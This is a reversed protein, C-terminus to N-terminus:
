TNSKTIIEAGMKSTKTFSRLFFTLVSCISFFFLFFFLSPFSFYHFLSLSLSFRTTFVTGKEKCGCTTQLPIPGPMIHSKIQPSCSKEESDGLKVLSDDYFYNLVLKQMCFSLCIFFCPFIGFFSKFVAVVCLTQSFLFLFSSVKWGFSPVYLKM